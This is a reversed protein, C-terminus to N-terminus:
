IIKAIYVYRQAFESCLVNVDDKKARKQGKEIDWVYFFDGM